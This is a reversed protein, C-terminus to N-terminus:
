VPPVGSAVGQGPAVADGQGAPEGGPALVYGLIAAHQEPTAVGLRKDLLLAQRLKIPDWPLRQAEVPRDDPLLTALEAEVDEVGLAQMLLKSVVTPDLTGAPQFGSLTTAGVIAQVRAAVDHELIDPFEVTVSGDIPPQEQGDEVEAHEDLNWVVHETGDDPDTEIRGLGALPGRPAKVAQLVVYDLMQRLADAWFAQRDQMHLETPRDMSKATALTGVSVDGFYTEPLDLGAAAMLWLRRGDEPNVGSNRINMPMMQAGETGIFTSGTVPPPNTEIGMGGGSALTTSLKTKAASIGPKGGKVTLNWAFRSHARRMTAYDELDEKAARAWDIASYVEPVGFRMHPLGGTKVHFVPRDWYVPYGGMVTPKHDPRYGWDPYYGQMEKAAGLGTDPNFQAENWVRRYLWPEKADEPNTIIDQVEDVDITRVRTRGTVPNVFLVFFLNGTTALDAQKLFRAPHSTLETQNKPDDVFAQVIDNVEPHNGSITVGAGWVYFAEVSVGRHILPNKLYMLRCLRIIRYLGERSFERDAGYMGWRMWGGAEDELSLELEALREQLLEANNETQRLSERLASAEAAPTTASDHGNQGITIPGLRM